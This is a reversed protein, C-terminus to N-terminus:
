LGSHETAFDSVNYPISPLPLPLVCFLFRFVLSLKAVPTM